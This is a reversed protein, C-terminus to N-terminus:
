RHYGRREDRYQHGQNCRRWDEWQQDSWQNYYDNWEQQSYGRYSGQHSGCGPQSPKSVNPDLQRAKPLARSGGQTSTAGIMTQIKQAVYDVLEQYVLGQTPAQSLFPEKASSLCPFRERPDFQAYVAAFQNARYFRNEYWVLVQEDVVIKQDSTSPDWAVSCIRARFQRTRGTQIEEKTRQVSPLFINGLVAVWHMCKPPLDQVSCNYAFRVDTGLRQPLTLGDKRCAKM